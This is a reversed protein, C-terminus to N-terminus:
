NVCKLRSNTRFYIELISWHEELRYNLEELPITKNAVQFSLREDFDYNITNSELDFVIPTFPKDFLRTTGSEFNNEFPKREPHYGDFFDNFYNEYEGEFVIEVLEDSVKKLHYPIIYESKIQENYTYYYSVIAEGINKFEIEYLNFYEIGTKLLNNFGEKNNLYNSETYEFGFNFMDYPEEQVDVDSAALWYMIESHASDLLEKKDEYYATSNDWVFKKGVMLREAQDIVTYKYEARITYYKEDVQFRIQKVSYDIDLNSIDVYMIESGLIEGDVKIMQGEELGIVLPIFESDVKSTYGLYITDGSVELSVETIYQYDSKVWVELQPEEEGPTKKECGTILLVGFTIAIGILNQTIKKM